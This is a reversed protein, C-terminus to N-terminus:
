NADLVAVFGLSSLVNQNNLHGCVGVIFYGQGGVPRRNAAQKGVWDSSYTDTAVLRNDALKVFTLSLGDVVIAAAITMGGVVYGEKAKLTIPEAPAPGHWSGM